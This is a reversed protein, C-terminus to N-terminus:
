FEKKKGANDRLTFKGGDKGAVAHIAPNTDGDLLVMGSGSESAGLKVRITGGSDRMRFVVEGTDEVKVSAREKGKDDVLEFERVSIKDFREQSPRAAIFALLLANATVAILMFRQAKMTTKEILNRRISSFTRSSVEHVQWRANRALETSNRTM